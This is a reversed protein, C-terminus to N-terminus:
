PKFDLLDNPTVNLIHAIVAVERDTAIRTQGELKSLSTCNIDVGHAQMQATLEKQTLGREKRFQAVRAGILNRSGPASRRINM